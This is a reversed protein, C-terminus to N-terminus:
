ARTAGAFDWQIPDGNSDPFLKFQVKLTAVDEGKHRGVELTGIQFANAAVIRETDDTSQWGIMQYQEAGLQPLKLTTRLTTGSGTTSPTPRNTARVALAATVNMLEFDVTVARGKIVQDIDDVYEEAKIPVTDLDVKWVSGNKTIGWQTWGTWTNVSFVSSAVTYDPLSTGPNAYFLTGPGKAIAGKPVTFTPM